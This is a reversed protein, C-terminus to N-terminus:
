KGGLARSLLRDAARFYAEVDFAEPNMILQLAAGQALAIIIPAILEADDATFEGAALGARILATLDSRWAAYMENIKNRVPERKTGQVWYDYYVELSERETLILNRQHELLARLKGRPGTAANLLEGRGARFHDLLYDLAAVFLKDKTDFAAELEAAVAQAVEEIAGDRKQWESRRWGASYSQDSTTGEAMAQADVAAQFRPPLSVRAQKEGERAIVGTPIHKWYVIRYEAM